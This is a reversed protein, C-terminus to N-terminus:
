ENESKKVFDSITQNFDAFDADVTAKHAAFLDQDTVSINMYIENNNVSGSFTAIVVGEANQSVGNFSNMKLM